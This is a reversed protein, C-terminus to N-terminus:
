SLGIFSLIKNMTVRATAAAIAGTADFDVTSRPSDDLLGDVEASSLSLKRAVASRRAPVGEGLLRYLALTLPILHSAGALFHRERLYNRFDDRRDHQAQDPM